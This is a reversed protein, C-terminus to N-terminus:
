GSHVFVTEHGAADVLDDSSVTTGMTDHPARPIGPCCCSRADCSPIEGFSCMKQKPQGISLSWRGNTHATDFSHNCFHRSSLSVAFQILVFVFSHLLHWLVISFFPPHLWMVHLFHLYSNQQTQM